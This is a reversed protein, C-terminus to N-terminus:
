RVILPCISVKRRYGVPSCFIRITLLTRFRKGVALVSSPWEEPELLVWRLLVRTTINRMIPLPQLSYAADQDSFLATFLFGDKVYAFKGLHQTVTDALPFILMCLQLIAM